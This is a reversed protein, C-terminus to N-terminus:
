KSLEFTSGTWMYELTRIKSKNTKCSTIKQTFRIGVNNKGENVIAFNKLEIANDDNNLYSCEKEEESYLGNYEGADALYFINYGRPNIKKPTFFFVTYGTGHIGHKLNSSEFLAFKKGNAGVFRLKLEVNPHYISERNKECIFDDSQFHCYYFNRWQSSVMIYERDNLRQCTDASMNTDSLYKNLTAYNKENKIDICLPFFDEASLPQFSMVITLVFFLKKFM